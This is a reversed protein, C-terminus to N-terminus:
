HTRGNANTNANAAIQRALRKRAAEYERPTICHAETAEKCSLGALWGSMVALAAPDNKFVQRLAETHRRAMRLDELAICDDEASQASPGLDSLPDPRSATELSSAGIVFRTEYRSRDAHSISKMANSLFLTFPIEKPWHRRGDLCRTLAEHILDAPETYQTGGLRLSAAKRLALLDSDSLSVFAAFLEQATAYTSM